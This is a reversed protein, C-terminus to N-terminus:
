KFKLPYDGKFVSFLHAKVITIPIIVDRTVTKDKAIITNTNKSLFLFFSSISSSSYKSLVM